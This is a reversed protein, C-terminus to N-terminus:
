EVGDGSDPQFAAALREAFTELEELRGEVAALEQEVAEVRDVLGEQGDQLAAVDDDLDGVEDAVRESLAELDGDLRARDEDVGEVDARLDAFAEGLTGHDDIFSELVDVYAELDGVKRQLHRILVRDSEGGQLQERLASAVEDDVAGTRLEALLAAAVGDGSGVGDGAGARDADDDREDVVDRDGEVGAGSGADAVGDAALSDTEGEILRRVAESDEEAVVDDLGALPAAGTEIEPDSDLRRLREKDVDRVRYVATCTEGGVLRREFVAADDFRWHEAGYEAHLDVADTPVDALAPETLRVAVAEEGEATVELTVTATDDDGTEVIKRVAVDEADATRVTEIGDSM